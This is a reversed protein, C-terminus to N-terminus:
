SLTSDKIGTGIHTYKDVRFDPCGRDWIGIYIYMSDSGSILYNEIELTDVITCCIEAGKCCSGTSWVSNRLTM